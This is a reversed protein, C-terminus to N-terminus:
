DWDICGIYILDNYKKDKNTIILNADSYYFLANANKINKSMCINYVEQTKQPSIPLEDLTIKLDNNSDSKYVGILDDDYWNIGIDKCFPCSGIGLDIDNQNNQFYESFEKKSKKSEGVWIHIKSMIDEM